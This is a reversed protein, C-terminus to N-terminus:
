GPPWTQTDGEGQIDNKRLLVFRLGVNMNNNYQNLLSYFEEVEM